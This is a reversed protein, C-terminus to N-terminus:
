QRQACVWPSALSQSKTPVERHGVGSESKKPARRHLPAHGLKTMVRKVEVKHSPFVSERQTRAGNNSNRHEGKTTNKMSSDSRSPGSSWIGLKGKKDARVESRAPPPSQSLPGPRPLWGQHQLTTSSSGCSCDDAPLPPSTAMLPWVSSHTQETHLLLAESPDFSPAPLHDSGPPPLLSPLIQTPLAESGAHESLDPRTRSASLSRSLLWPEHPKRPFHIAARSGNRVPGKHTVVGKGVSFHM